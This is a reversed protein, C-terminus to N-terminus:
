DFILFCTCYCVATVFWNQLPEGGLLTIETLHPCHDNFIEKKFLSLNFGEVFACVRHPSGRGSSRGSFLSSRSRGGYEQCPEAQLWFMDFREPVENIVPGRHHNLANCGAHYSSSIGQGRRRVAIGSRQRRDSLWHCIWSPRAPFSEALRRWIPFDMSFELDLFIGYLM